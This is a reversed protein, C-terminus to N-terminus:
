RNRLRSISSSLVEAPVAVLALNFLLLNLDATATCKQEDHGFNGYCRSTQKRGRYEECAENPSEANKRPDGTQGCKYVRIEENSLEHSRGTFRQDCGYINRMIM